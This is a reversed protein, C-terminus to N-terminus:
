SVQPPPNGIPITFYFSTGQDMESEMWIKGGHAEVTMKSFPL